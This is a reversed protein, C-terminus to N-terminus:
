GYSCRDCPAGSKKRNYNSRLAKMGPSNYLEKMTMHNLDGFGYEGTGDMCCLATKGTATINLEWWRGCPHEPVEECDSTTFDIWADKRIVAPKFKPWRKQV